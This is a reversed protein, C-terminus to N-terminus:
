SKNPNTPIVSKQSWRVYLIAGEFLLYLPAMLMLMSIADPPAVVAAIVAIVVIAIRRQSALQEANLINLKALLAIVVPLEFCLGFGLLIKLIVSIYSDLTLLAVEANTGYSLFYKVGAPFLVKYAFVGGMLFFTSAAFLFPQISKKESEKLGPAVFGWLIRFYIPSFLFLSAYASVKLHVLFNEFLGTYYLHRQDLPLQDFLPKRLFDLIHDSVFYLGLFGLFFVWLCKVLRERLEDLHEWFGM